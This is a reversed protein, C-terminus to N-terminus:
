SSCCGALSSNVDNLSLQFLYLSSVSLPKRHLKAREQIHCKAVDAASFTTILSIDWDWM